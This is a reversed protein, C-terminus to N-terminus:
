AHCWRGEPSHVVVDDRDDEVEKRELGDAARKAARRLSNGGEDRAASDVRRQHAEEAVKPSLGVRRGNNIAAAEDVAVEAHADPCGLPHTEERRADV